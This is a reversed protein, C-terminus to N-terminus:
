TYSSSRMFVCRLWVKVHIGFIGHQCELCISRTNRTLKGSYVALFAPGCVVFTEICGKIVNFNTRLPPDAHYAMTHITTPGDPVSVGLECFFCLVNRDHVERACAQRFPVTLPCPYNPVPCCITAYSVGSTM